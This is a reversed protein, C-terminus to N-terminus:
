FNDKLYKQLEDLNYAAQQSGNAKAKQLFEEAKAWDENYAYALGLMPWIKSDNSRRQLRNVADQYRGAQLDLIAANIAPEVDKTFTEDAIAWTGYQEKSGKPYSQAVAYVEALSLRSPHTKITEKAKELSFGKVVISFVLESRRLPPYVEQLLMSYVRGNDLAKLAKTRGEPTPIKLAELVDNKAAFSLNSVAEQLGEWDQGKWSNDFRGKLFPYKSVLYGAFSIARKKSLEINYDVGGEPSAYGVMGLRNFVIDENGKLEKLKADIKALESPNNEFDPIINYKGVKYSINAILTEERRKVLEGKPVIMSFKYEPQYLPYLFNNTLVEESVGLHCEACGSDEARLILSADKMWPKYAISTSYNFQQLKGNKRPIIVTNETQGPVAKYNNEILMKRQIIDYRKRGAVVFQPLVIEETGKNSRIIPTAVRKLNTGMKPMDTLDILMNVNVSQGVKHGVYQEQLKMGTTEKKQAFSVSASGTLFLLILIYRTPKM